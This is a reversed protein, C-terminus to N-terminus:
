CSLAPLPARSYSWKQLTRFEPRNSGSCKQLCRRCWRALPAAPAKASIGDCIDAAGGIHVVRRM